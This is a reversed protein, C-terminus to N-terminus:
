KYDSYVIRLAREHLRNIKNNLTGTLACYNFHSKMIMRCKDFSMYNVLRSLVDVKTIVKNCTFSFHEGFTLDSNNQIGLLKKTSSPELYVKKPTKSSLLFYSKELNAKMHNNNFWTFLKIGTIQLESIVTNIGSACAYSTTDDACNEIDSDECEYFM